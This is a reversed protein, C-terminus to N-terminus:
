SRVVRRHRTDGDSKSTWLEFGFHSLEESRELDHRFVRIEISEGTDMSRDEILDCISITLGIFSEFVESISYQFEDDCLCQIM